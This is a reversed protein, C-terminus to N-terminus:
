LRDDVKMLVFVHFLGYGTHTVSLEGPLDPFGDDRLSEFGTLKVTKGEPLLDLKGTDRVVLELTVAAIPAGNVTRVEVFRRRADYAKRRPDDHRVQGTIRLLVGFEEALMPSITQRQRVERKDIKRAKETSMLRFGHEAAWIGGLFIGAGVLVAAVCLLMKKQM